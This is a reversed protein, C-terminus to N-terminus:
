NLKISEVYDNVLDKQAAEGELNKRLLKEAVQLSLTAVQSKVEKLAAKKEAIITAKAEEIMKEGIKLADEKASEKIENAAKVADKLIKDREARAEELLKENDAKLRAMEEKAQKASELANEISSEREKLGNLIPKWAFKGLVFLVVLFVVTQWIVLGAEPIILDM